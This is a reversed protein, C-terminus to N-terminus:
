IIPRPDSLESGCVLCVGKYNPPYTLPRKEVLRGNNQWKQACYACKKALFSHALAEQWIEQIIKEAWENIQSERSNIESILAPDVMTGPFQQRLYSLLYPVCRKRLHNLRTLRGIKRELTVERGDSLNRWLNRMEFVYDKFLGALYVPSNLREAMEIGCGIEILEDRDIIMM